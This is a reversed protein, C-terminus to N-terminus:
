MVCVHVNVRAYIYICTCIHSTYLCQQVDWPLEYPLSPKRLVPRRLELSSLDTNCHIASHQLTDYHTAINQLTNYRSVAEQAGAEAVWFLVPTHQLSYCRTASHRPVHCYTATTGLSVTEEVNAEAVWLAVPRHQLTNFRITWYQLIDGYTVTHKSQQLTSCHAVAKPHSRHTPAKFNYTEKASYLRKWLASKCFLGILKLLRSITAVGNRPVPRRLEFSPPDTNCHTATHQM